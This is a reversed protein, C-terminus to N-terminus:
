AAIAAELDWVLNRQDNARDRSSGERSIVVQGGNLDIYTTGYRGRDSNIYLRRHTGREWVKVSDIWIVKDTVSRVAEIMWDDETRAYVAKLCLAFTAGYSVGHRKVWWAPAEALTRRTLAHAATFIQSATRAMISELSPSDGESM